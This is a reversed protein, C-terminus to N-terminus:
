GGPTTFVQDDSVKITGSCDTVYRYHYEINSLLGIMVATYNTGTRAATVKGGAVGAAYEAATDHAFRDYYVTGIGECTGVWSVSATLNKYTPGRYTVFSQIDSGATRTTDAVSTIIIKYFYASEAELGRITATYAYQDGNTDKNVVKSGTASAITIVKDLNNESDGYALTANVPETAVFTVLATVDNPLVTIDTVALPTNQITVPTSVGWDSCEGAATQAVARLSYSGNSYARTNLNSSYPSTTDNSVVTYVDSYNDAISFAVQKIAKQSQVTASIPATGSITSGSQPETISATINSDLVTCGPPFQGVSSDSQWNLDAVAIGTGQYYELRIRHKGATLSTRYSYDAEAQDIWKDIVKQGDIYLRAGDDVKLNFIYIGSDFSFNGEWTASFTGPEVFEIDPSDQEGWRYDINSERRAIRLDTLNSNNYYCALYDDDPIGSCVQGNTGQNVTTAVIVAPDTQVGQITVGTLTLYYVTERKLNELLAHHTQTQQPDNYTAAPDFATNYQIHSTTDINTTWTLDISSETTKAAINTIYPFNSSNEGYNAFTYVTGSQNDYDNCAGNDAVAIAKITYEGDSFVATDFQLAYPSTAAQGVGAYGVIYMVYKIKLGRPVTVNSELQVTKTLTKATPKTIVTSIRNDYTQCGFIDGGGPIWPTSGEGGTGTGGSGGEGSASGGNEPNSINVGSEGSGSNTGDSIIVGLTYDGNKYDKTDLDFCNFDSKKQIIPRKNLLITESVIPGNSQIDLCINQTGSLTSGDKIKISVTPAKANKVPRLEVNGSYSAEGNVDRSSAQFNYTRSADLGHLTVTHNTSYQKPQAAKPDYAFYGYNQSFGYDLRGDTPKLTRWTAVVTGDAPSYVSLTFDAKKQGAIPLSVTDTKAPAVSINKTHGRKIAIYAVIGAILVLIIAILAILKRRDEFIGSFFGRVREWFTPQYEFDSDFSSDYAPSFDAPPTQPAPALPTPVAFSESLAQPPTPPQPMVVDSHPLVAQPPTPISPNQEDV